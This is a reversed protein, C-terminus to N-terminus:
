EASIPPAVEFLNGEAILDKGSFAVCQRDRLLEM